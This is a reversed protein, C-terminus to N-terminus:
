RTHAGGTIDLGGRRSMALLDVLQECEYYKTEFIFDEAINWGYPYFPQDLLQKVLNPKIFTRSHPADRYLAGPFIRQGGSVNRVPLNAMATDLKFQKTLDMTAVVHACIWGTTWFVKCDSRYLSRIEKIQLFM